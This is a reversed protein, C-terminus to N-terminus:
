FLSLLQGDRIWGDCCSRQSQSLEASPKNVARSTVSVTTVGSNLHGKVDPGLAM